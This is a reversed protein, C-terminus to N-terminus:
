PRVRGDNGLEADVQEAAEGGQALLAFREVGPEDGPGRRQRRLPEGLREGVRALDVARRSRPRAPQEDGMEEVVLRVV